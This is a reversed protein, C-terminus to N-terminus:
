PQCAFTHWGAGDQKLASTIGSVLSLLIVARTYGKMNGEWLSAGSLSFLPTTQVLASKGLSVYGQPPVPRWIGAGEKSNGRVSKDWWIRRFDVATAQLRRKSQTRLLQHRTKRFSRYSDFGVAKAPTARPSLAGQAAAAPQALAAPTMGLPSRLDLMPGALPLM